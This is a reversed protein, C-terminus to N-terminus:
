KQFNANSRQRRWGDLAADVGSPVEITGTVKQGPSASATGVIFPKRERAPALTVFLITFVLVIYRMRDSKDQLVNWVFM